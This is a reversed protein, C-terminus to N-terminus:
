SSDDEGRRQGATQARTAARVAAVTRTVAEEPPVIPSLSTLASDVEALAEVFRRCRECGEVHRRATEDHRLLGAGQEVLTGRLQDCSWTM